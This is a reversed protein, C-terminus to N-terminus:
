PACEKMVPERSAAAARMRALEQSCAVFLDTVEREFRACENHSIVNDRTAEAFERLLDAFEQGIDSMGKYLSGQEPRPMPICALGAGRAFEIAGAPDAIAATLREAEDLTLQHTDCTPSLKKRLVDASMGLLEAAKTIGFRKTAHYLALATPGCTRLPARVSKSHIPPSVFTRGMGSLDISRPGEEVRQARRGVIPAGVREVKLLRAGMDVKGMLGFHGPQREFATM